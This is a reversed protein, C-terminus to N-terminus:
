SSLRFNRIMRVGALALLLAPIAIGLLAVSVRAVVALAPEEEWLFRPLSAIDGAAVMKRAFVLRAFHDRWTVLFRNAQLRFSEFRETGSGALDAMAGQALIAPSLFRFRNLLERQGELQRDFQELVPAVLRDTEQQVALSKSAADAASAAGGGSLEPHDELYRALLLSGRATAEKSAERMAHIMEVRSPVPYLVGAVMHLGSPIILTLVVWCGCVAVANAASSRGMANVVIALAFWFAAYTLLIAMWLLFEVSWISGGSAQAALMSVSVALLLLVIGRSALKGFAVTALRVPQSLTLALTGQEREASLVNYSLALILLPFLYVLVFALDFRGYLLNDPNEIEDASMVSSAAQTSARVYYPYLDSQGIALAGLSQPPLVLYPTGERSGVVSPMRPDQFPPLGATAAKEIRGPLAALRSAQEARVANITAHQHATWAAGNWAGYGLLVSFLGAVLYLSREATLNKLDYKLIHLLM